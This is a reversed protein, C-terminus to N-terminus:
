DRMKKIEDRIKAADEYREEKIAQNLNEQLREIETKEKEKEFIEKYVNEKRNLEKDHIKKNIRDDLIKGIRGTHKKSRKQTRGEFINNYGDDIVKEMGTFMPLLEPAFFDEMFDEFFGDFNMPIDFSIDSIGLEKSCEECLNLNRKRGNINEAYRVNAVRKKCNECLM